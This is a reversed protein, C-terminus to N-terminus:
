IVVTASSMTCWLMETCLLLSYINASRKNTLNCYYDKRNKRGYIFEERVKLLIQKKMLQQDIVFVFNWLYSAM